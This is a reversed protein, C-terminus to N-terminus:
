RISEPALLFCEVKRANKLTLTLKIKNPIIGGMHSTNFATMNPLKGIGLFKFANFHVKQLINSSVLASFARNISLYESTSMFM